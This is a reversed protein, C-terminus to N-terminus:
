LCTKVGDALLPALSIVNSPHTISDTSWIHDFDSAQLRPWADGAFLAHTVIASVSSAGAATAASAAALLTRGTSAMDDVLVIHRGAVSINVPMHIVVDSDGLREKTAVAIDFGRGAAVASVWQLSEDDPGLLLPRDIQTAIFDGMLATASLAIAKGAPIAQELHHVRHLHPDVTIVADFAGALLNGLVHQSVAEGAHFAMDQRMYCLYPAVLILQKVGNDRAASAALLLEVLKANPMDLSCLIVVCEPLPVPVSVRSEGDPFRHVDIDAADVPLRESSLAAALARAATRDAPFNLVMM